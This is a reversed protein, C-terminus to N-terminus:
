GQVEEQRCAEDWDLLYWESAWRADYKSLWAFCGRCFIGVTRPEDDCEICSVEPTVSPLPRTDGDLLGSDILAAMLESITRIPEGAANFLQIRTSLTTM